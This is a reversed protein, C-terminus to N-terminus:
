AHRRVMWVGLLGSVAYGLAMALLAGVAGLSPVTLLATTLALASAALRSVFMDRTRRIVYLASEIPQAVIMLIGVVCWVDLVTTQDRYRDGFAYALIAHDAAWLTLLYLGGIMGMLLLSRQMTRQLGLRGERLYARTARPKDVGDMAAILVNVPQVLARCAHFAGLAAPGAMSGLVSQIGFNYGSFGLHSCSAWVSFDRVESSQRHEPQSRGILPLGSGALYAAVAGLSGCGVAIAPLWSRDVATPWSITVGGVLVAYVTAMWIVRSWRDRLILTRRGFEQLNIPVLLCAAFLASTALWTNGVWHGLVSTLLCTATSLLTLGLNRRTWQAIEADDHAKNAGFAIMPITVMSRQFGQLFIAAAYGYGFIGWADQGLTRACYLFLLFNTGSVLGQDLLAAVRRPLLHPAAKM